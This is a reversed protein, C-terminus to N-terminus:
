PLSSREWRTVQWEWSESEAFASPPNERGLINLCTEGEIGWNVIVIKSINVWLWFFGGKYLAKRLPNRLDVLGLKLSKYM